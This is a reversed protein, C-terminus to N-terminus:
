YSNKNRGRGGRHNGQRNKQMEELAQFFDPYKSKYKATFQEMKQRFEQRKARITQRDGSKRLNQMEQQHAQRMAKMQDTMSKFEPDNKYKEMAEYLKKAAPNNKFREQMRKQRMEKAAQFFDPFKSQYKAEIDEMKQRFEQNGAGRQQHNGNNGGRNRNRNRRQQQHLSRIEKQMAQFEPDNEYKKMASQLKKFSPDNRMQQRRRQRRKHQKEIEKFFDPFKSNYKAKVADMKTKMQQMNAKMTERDPRTGSNQMSERKQRQEDRIAKLESLMKQFDPDNKYKQMIQRMQGRDGDRGRNGPGGPGGGPPGEFDQAWAVTAALLILTITLLIRKISKM